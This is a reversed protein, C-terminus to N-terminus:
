MHVDVAVSVEEGSDSNTLGCAYVQAHTKETSLHKKSTYDKIGQKIVEIRSMNESM